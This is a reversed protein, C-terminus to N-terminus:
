RASAANIDPQLADQLVGSLYAAYPATIHQSDSYVLLNGVVATCVASCFWPIVNIYKAGAVASADKDAAQFSTFVAKSEALSCDQISTTHLALCDAPSTTSYGPNTTASPVLYGIDGLVVKKTGPSKIKSLSADLGTEWDAPSFTSSNTIAPIILGTVVVISPDLQNVEKYLWRHWTTCATYPHGEQLLFYDIDAPGCSVKWLDIVRWGVRKGIAEFAPLWMAAHSDGLIVITHHANPNEFTCSSIPISTQSYTAVCAKAMSTGTDSEAHQLSPQLHKPLVKVNPANQVLALVDATSAPSKATTVTSTQAAVGEDSTRGYVTLASCVFLCLAAGVWGRASVDLISVGNKRV